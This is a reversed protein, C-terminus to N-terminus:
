NWYGETFKYANGQQEWRPAVWTANSSPPLQWHGAMWEYRDNRWSWYGALWVYNPAPQALVIETQLAPPAETVVTTSVAPAATTVLVTGPNGVVVAPMTNPSITTTTTTISRVPEPPPASVLHSEPETACGALLGLAGCTVLAASLRAVTRVPTSGPFLLINKIKMNRSYMQIRELVM